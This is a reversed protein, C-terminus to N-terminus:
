TCNVNEYLEWSFYDLYPDNFYKNVTKPDHADPPDVLLHAHAFFLFLFIRFKLKSMSSKMGRLM